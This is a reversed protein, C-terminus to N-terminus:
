MNRNEEVWAVVAEALAGAIQDASRVLLWAPGVSLCAAPMRTERLIPVAMGRCTSDELALQRAVKTALHTALRKGAESEWNYSAYYSTAVLPGDQDPELHVVASAGAANAAQALFSPDPHELDFAEIRQPRLKRIAADLIAGMGGHSTVMLLLTCDNASHVRLSERERIDALFRARAAPQRLRCLEEVTDPGCRGDPYLGVNRQFETLASATQPGFIGDIRGADFGLWGLRRQLEAV